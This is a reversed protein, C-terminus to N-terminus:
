FASFVMILFNDRARGRHVIVFCCLCFLSLVVSVFCHRVVDVFCHLVVYVFCHRCLMFLVVVVCRFMYLLLADQSDTVRAAEMFLLLVVFSLVLFRQLGNNM